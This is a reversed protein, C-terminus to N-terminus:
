KLNIALPIPLSGSASVSRTAVTHSQEQVVRLLVVDGAHLLIKESLASKDLVPVILPSVTPHVMLIFPCDESSGLVKEVPSPWLRTEGMAKRSICHAFGELDTDSFVMQGETRAMEDGVVAIM